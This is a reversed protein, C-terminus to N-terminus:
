CVYVCQTGHNLVTRIKFNVSPPHHADSFTESYSVNQSQRSPQSFSLLHLSSVEMGEGAERGWCVRKGLIGPAPSLSSLTNRPCIHHLSCPSRFAIVRKGLTQVPTPLTTLFNKRQAIIRTTWPLTQKLASCPFPLVVLHCHQVAAENSPIPVAQM